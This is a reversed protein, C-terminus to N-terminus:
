RGEVPTGTPQANTMTGIGSSDDAAGSASEPAAAITKNRVLLESAWGDKPNVAVAREFYNVAESQRGLKLVSVGTMCLITSDKPDLAAAAELTTLAESWKKQKQQVLAVLLWGQVNRPETKVVKRGAALAAPLENLEICVKGLGLVAQSNEPQQRIVEQFCARADIPRHMNLYCQGMMLTLTMRNSLQSETPPGDVPFLQKRLDDILPAAEAYKGAFYLSQAYSQKVDQDDPVLMFADRYHKSAALYEGKLTCIRALAIRVAATQEFYVLKDELIRQADDLQGLTIKMEVVALMLRADNSKRDWAQQYYDCAVELKQWRQYVVGLLYFPEPDNPSLRVAFKLHVSASDLDGKEIDVKAALLELGSHPEGMSMAEALTAKCKDYDGVAYQQQALQFQVGLKAMNWRQYQEQKITQHKKNMDSCATTMLVAASVGTILLSRYLNRTAM